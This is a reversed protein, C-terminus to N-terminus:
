SRYERAIQPRAVYNRSAVLPYPTNDSQWCVGQGASIIMKGVTSLNYLNNDCDIDNVCSKGSVACFKGVVDIGPKVEEEAEKLFLFPKLVPLNNDACYSLRFNYYEGGVKPLASGNFPQIASSNFGSVNKTKGFSIGEEFPFYDVPPWPNECFMAELYTMGTFIQGVQSKDPDPDVDETVKANAVAVSAGEM